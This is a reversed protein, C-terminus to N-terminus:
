VRGRSGLGQVQPGFPEWMVKPTLGQFAGHVSFGVYWAKSDLDCFYVM